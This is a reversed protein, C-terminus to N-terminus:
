FRRNPKAMIDTDFRGILLKPIIEEINPEAVLQSSVMNVDNRCYGAGLVQVVELEAWPDNASPSLTVKASAPLWEKILTQSTNYFLRANSYSLKGNVDKDFLFKYCYSSGDIVQGAKREGFIGQAKPSNYAGIEAEVDIIRIGNREVLASVSDGMRTISINDALKKPLGSVERGYYIAMEAGYGALQLNVFYTGPMDNYLAPLMIAAERYPACFNAEQINIIYVTVIPFRMKLPHPLIKEVLEPKTLYTLYLGEQTNLQGGGNMWSDEAASAKIDEESMVFSINNM